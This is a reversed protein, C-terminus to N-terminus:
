QEPIQPNVVAVVTSGTIAGDITTASVTVCYASAASLPALFTGAPVPIVVPPEFVINGENVPDIAIYVGYDPAYPTFPGAAAPSNAVAACPKTGGLTNSIYTGGNVIAASWKYRNNNVFGHQKGSYTQASLAIFGGALVRPISPTGYPTIVVYDPSNNAGFSLVSGGGSCASLALASLAALSLVFRRM